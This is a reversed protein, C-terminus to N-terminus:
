TGQMELHAVLMEAGLLVPTISDCRELRNDPSENLASSPTSTSVSLLSLQHLEVSPLIVVNGYEYKELYGWHADDTKIKREHAEIHSQKFLSKIGPNGRDSM